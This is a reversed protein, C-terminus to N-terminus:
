NISFDLEVDNIKAWDIIGALIRLHEPNTLDGKFWAHDDSHTYFPLEIGKSVAAVFFETGTYTRIEM